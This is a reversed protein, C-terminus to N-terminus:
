INATEDCLLKYNQCIPRGNFSVKMGMRTKKLIDQKHILDPTNLLLLPPFFSCYFHQSSYFSQQSIQVEQSFFM